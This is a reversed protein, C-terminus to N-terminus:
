DHIGISNLVVVEGAVAISPNVYIISTFGSATVAHCDGPSYDNGDSSSATTDVALFGQLNGGGAAATHGTGDQLFLVTVFQGPSGNNITISDIQATVPVVFSNQGRADLVLNM